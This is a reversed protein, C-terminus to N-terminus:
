LRKVIHFRKVHLHHIKVENEMKDLFTTMAVLIINLCILFYHLCVSVVQIRQVLATLRNAIDHDPIHWPRAIHMLLQSSPDVSDLFKTFKQKVSSLQM